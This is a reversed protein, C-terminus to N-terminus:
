FPDVLSLLIFLLFPMHLPLTTSLLNSYFSHFFSCDTQILSVLSINSCSQCSIWPDGQLSLQSSAPARLSHQSAGEHQLPVTTALTGEQLDRARSYLRWYHPVLITASLTNIIFDPARLGTFFSTWFQLMSLEEM